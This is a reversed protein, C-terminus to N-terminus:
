ELEFVGDRMAVTGDLTFSAQPVVYDQHFDTNVLGGMHSSDGTALHVTGLIKEAEEM